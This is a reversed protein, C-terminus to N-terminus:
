GAPRGRDGSKRRGQRHSVKIAEGYVEMIVQGAALTAEVMLDLMATSM